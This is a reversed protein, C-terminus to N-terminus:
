KFVKYLVIPKKTTIPYYLSGNSSEPHECHIVDVNYNVIEYHIGEIVLNVSKINEDNFADRIENFVYSNFM